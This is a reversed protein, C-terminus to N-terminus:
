LHIFTDPVMHFHLVYAFYTPKGDANPGSARISISWGTKASLADGLLGFLKPIMAAIQERAHPYSRLVVIPFLPLSVTEFKGEVSERGKVEEGM